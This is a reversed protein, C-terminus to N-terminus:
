AMIEEIHLLSHRQRHGRTRRYGRRRKKKFVIVKPARQHSVLTAEVRAGALVPQGIRTAEGDVVMLVRDFSVKTGAEGSLKPALIDDGKSVKFQQGAIEVLAYMIYFEQKYRRVSSLKENEQRRRNL